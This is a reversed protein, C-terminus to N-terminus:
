LCVFFHNRLVAGIWTTSTFDEQFCISVDLQHYKLRAHLKYFPKIVTNYLNHEM